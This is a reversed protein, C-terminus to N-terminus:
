MSAGQAGAEADYQHVLLKFEDNNTSRHLLEDREKEENHRRSERTGYKELAIRYQDTDEVVQEVKRKWMDRKSANEQVVLIRWQKEMQNSIKQLEALKTRQERALNSNGNGGFNKLESKELRELGDRIDFSLRRAVTYLDQLSAM